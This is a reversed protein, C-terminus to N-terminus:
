EDGEVNPDPIHNFAIRMPASDLAAHAGGFYITQKSYKSNLRDLAANLAPSSRSFPFLTPTSTKAESLKLLTIDVKFPTGNILPKRSWMTTLANILLLTDQTETFHIEDVWREGNLYRIKVFMAGALCGYSRLRVAAKQLLRHIVAIAKEETRYEPELVHSHGVSSRHTLPSYVREGRLNEFMREGEIGGWVKRLRAKDADWLDRVTHIGGQRLRKEMQPGIGTLDSLELKFLCEPLDPLDIVVLGDPKQMDSATKSLFVNPAIGISCRLERGVKLYITRKIQHALEVARERNKQSGTLECVMEDISLVHEVPICSEVAQVLKHHYEVYLAPRAEVVNLQPCLQKAEGVGTGTKVGFKKAEYSAAICVTTDVDMPVVAVPKGRLEPRAQQEVSAFYSNFDIFLHHLSM